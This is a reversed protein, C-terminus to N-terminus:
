SLLGILENLLATVQESELNIGYKRLTNVKVWDDDDQTEEDTIEYRLAALLRRSLKGWPDAYKRRPIVDSPVESNGLVRKRTQASSKERKM